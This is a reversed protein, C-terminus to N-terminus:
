ERGSAASILNAYAEAADARARLREIEARALAREFDLLEILSMDGSRYAGLAAEREERAGRLLVADFAAVRERAAEYRAVEAALTARVEAVAADLATEAATVERDAAEARARNAEGATFPLTVSASLVPGFASEGGEVRRQAGVAASFRPRREALVLSRSAEAQELAAEAMLVEGALSLLSDLPPPPPIEAAEDGGPPRTAATDVLAHATTAGDPGALGVLAEREARAGALAEARDTQIRLRETRLRLVDVYRADGVSFRDRLSTEASVLLSDEGALRQATWAGAVIRALHRLTRARIRREVAILRAEAIRADTAALARAAARRGGTLFERGVEVRLGAGTVDFGDPVDDIEGSLVAPPAFGAGAARARAAELSARHAELEPSHRVVLDQIRRTLDADALSPPAQARVDTTGGLALLLALALTCGGSLSARPAFRRACHGGPVRRPHAARCIRDNMLKTQQTVARGAVAIAAPSRVRPQDILPPARRVLVDPAPVM